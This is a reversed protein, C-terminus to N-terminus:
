RQGGPVLIDSYTRGTVLDYDPSDYPRSGAYKDGHRAWKSYTFTVGLRLFNDDAWTVPQPNVLIPWADILTILYKAEPSRTDLLTNETEDFQFIKIDCTYENKYSFDYSNTPNIVQMWDDFFRREPSGNRCIFTLTSDEYTTQYPYKQSPGHYSHDVTQFGRGPLEAAECLYILELPFNAYSSDLVRLINDMSLVIQVGFRCSRALGGYAFSYTRFNAMTLDTPQNPIPTQLPNRIM